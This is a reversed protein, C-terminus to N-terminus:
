LVDRGIDDTGMLHETSGGSWLPPWNFRDQFIQNPDYPALLPSFVAFFGFIALLFLGIVAGKNQNLRRWFKKM